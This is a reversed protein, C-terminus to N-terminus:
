EFLEKWSGLEEWDDKLRTTSYYELKEKFYKDSITDPNIPKNTPYDFLIINLTPDSESYILYYSHNPVKLENVAQSIGGYEKDFLHTKGQYYGIKYVYTVRKGKTHVQKITRCTTLIKKGFKTYLYESAIKPLNFGIYILPILVLVTILWEKANKTM